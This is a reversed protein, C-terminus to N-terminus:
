GPNSTGKKLLTRHKRKRQMIVLSEDNHATRGVSGMVRCLRAGALTFLYYSAFPKLSLRELIGFHKLYSSLPYHYEEPKKPFFANKSQLLSIGEKWYQNPLSSLRGAVDRLKVILKITTEETAKGFETRERLYAEKLMMASYARVMANNFRLLARKELASKSLMMTESQDHRRYHYLPRGEINLTKIGKDFCEDMFINDTGWVGVLPIQWYERALAIRKSSPVIQNEDLFAKKFISSWVYFLHVYPGDNCQLSGNQKLEKEEPTLEYFFEYCPFAIRGYESHEKAIRSLDRVANSAVIDDHDVFWIYDGQAQAFGITRGTKGGHKKFIAVINPNKEAYERLMEPTRDTSGDDVCIIEYDDKPYDQDLCSDLCENLYKEDNYTPIIISLFM